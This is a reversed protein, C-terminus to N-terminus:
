VYFKSSLSVSTHIILYVILYYTKNPSNRIVAQAINIHAALIAVYDKRHRDDTTQVGHQFYCFGCHQCHLLMKVGGLYAILPRRQAICRSLCKAIRRREKQLIQGAACLCLREFCVENSVKITKRRIDLHYQFLELEAVLDVRHHVRIDKTRDDLLESRRIDVQTRIRNVLVGFLGNELMGPKVIVTHSRNKLFQNALEVFLVIFFGTFVPRRAVNDFEHSVKHKQGNGVLYLVGRIGTVVSSASGATHERHRLLTQQLKGTLASLFHGYMEESLLYVRLSIRNAGCVHKQLAVSFFGFVYFISRSKGVIM